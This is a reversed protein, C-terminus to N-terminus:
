QKISKAQKTIGNKSSLKPDNNVIGKLSTLFNITLYRRREKIIIIAKKNPTAKKYPDIKFRNTSKILLSSIPAIKVVLLTSVKFVIALKKYGTLFKLSKARKFSIFTLKTIEKAKM